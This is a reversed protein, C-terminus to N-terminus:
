HDGKDSYTEKKLAAAAELCERALLGFNEGFLYPPAKKFDKDKFQQKLQPNLQVMLANRRAASHHNNANGMLQLTTQVAHIVEAPLEM